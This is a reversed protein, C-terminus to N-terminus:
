TGNEAGFITGLNPGGRSQGPQTVCCNQLRKRILEVSDNGRKISLGEPLKEDPIIDEVFERINKLVKHSTKRNEIWRGSNRLHECGRIMFRCKFMSIKYVLIKSGLRLQLMNHPRVCTFLSLIDELLITTEKV